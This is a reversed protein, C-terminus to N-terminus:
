VPSKKFFPKVVPCQLDSSFDTTTSSPTTGEVMEMFERFNDLTEDSIGSNESTMKVFFKSGVSINILIFDYSAM